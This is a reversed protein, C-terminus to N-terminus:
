KIIYDMRIKKDYVGRNELFTELDHLDDYIKTNLNDHRRGFNNRIMNKLTEKSNEDIFYKLLYSNNGLPIFVRETYVEQM